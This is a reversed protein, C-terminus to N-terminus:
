SKKEKAKRLEADALSCGSAGRGGDISHYTYSGIKYTTYGQKCGWCYPERDTLPIVGNVARAAKKGFLGRAREMADTYRSM